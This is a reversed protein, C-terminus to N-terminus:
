GRKIFKASTKGEANNFMVVYTGSPVTALNISVNNEGKNLMRTEKYIIVGSISYVSISSNAKSTATYVINLNTSVPNQKINLGAQLPNKNSRAATNRIALMLLPSYNITVTAVNSTSPAYGNDTVSYTFTITGGTYGEAPTYTFTGNANLVLTGQAPAAVLAVTYIENDAPFQDNSLVNDSVDSIIESAYTDNVATAAPNCHIVPGYFASANINLDDFIIRSNGDGTAGGIRLELRYVGTSPISYTANHSLVSTSTNKDMTIVQLSTFVGNRDSIGIDITRTAQGAIKSSTKYKFSVSFSTSTVNLFPTAITREGSGSTPPNSYASGTGNIVDGSTTSYNIQNLVWCNSSLGTTNQDFNESFQASVHASVVSTILLFLLTKM